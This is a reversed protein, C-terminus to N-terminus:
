TRSKKAPVTEGAVEMAEAKETTKVKFTKSYIKPQVEASQAGSKM